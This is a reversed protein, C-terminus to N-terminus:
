KVVMIKTVVATANDNENQSAFVFYVGTSVRDGSANCGDWVAMGGNSRTQYVVNGAADAIKVLSNDMLGTVTIWGTYDPRVPNPYAYVNSYDTAAAVTTSSYTILGTSLGIYVLNSNPDCYLSQIANSPLPSNETTYHEIIEDGSASVYYLGSNETGIWKRNTADVAIANIQEADLLYDAYNTGDNRPVKPRTIQYSADVVQAPNTVVAVGSSTAFWVQGNKDEVGDIWFTPSFSGGDQDKLNDLNFFKDDDVNTLTGNTRYVGLSSGWGDYFTFVVPSKKCLVMRCENLDVLQGKHKTEIWDSKKVESLDGALKAAPLILYPCYSTDKQNRYGVWLNGEADFYCCSFLGLTGSYWTNVPMNTSDFKGVQENDRVVYIGDGLTPIFYRHSDNPDVALREPAYLATTGHSSQVQKIISANAAAVTLSADSVKGNEIVDTRQRTNFAGTDNYLSGISRYATYSNNSFYIRKGDASPVIYALEACTLAEPKFKDAKVTVEGDAVSYNAMGSEDGCWVSSLDKYFDLAQGSLSAPLSERGTITGDAFNVYVVETGTYLAGTNDSHRTVSKITSVNKYDTDTVKGTSWDVACFRLAKTDKNYEFFGNDCGEIMSSRSSKLRSFKDFTNIRTGVAAYYYAGDNYLIVNNGSVGVLEMKKGYIGSDKVTKSNEDYVVVGFDTAVYIRDNGFAVDNITKTYTINADAIDCMNVVRGDEDAIVDINSTDYTVLVYNKAANYYINTVNIDNLGNDTSYSYSESTTKDYSFLRGSSVYYVKNKADVVKTVGDAFLSYLHWEGVNQAQTSMGGGVLSLLM